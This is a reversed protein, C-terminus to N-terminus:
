ACSGEINISTGEGKKSVIDMTGNLYNTRAKINSLGAGDKVEAQDFGIGDDEVTLTFRDGERVLQILVKKAEAHKIVNNLLEQVIRYIVIEASQEMRTEMGYTQLQVELKGAHNLSDCYNELAEKLGYKILAEPMMNHSVRRLEAISRDLQDIVNGFSRANEESLFVNGKMTSMSLKVGSLLGGIGDHLDRALRSREEEQGKMLSQAALLKKEKELESLQKAHLERSQLLLRNKNQYNKWLLGASLLLLVCGAMLAFNLNTKQRLVTRQALNNQQLSAISDRKKESQYRNEIEEIKQTTENAKLSDSLVIYDKYYDASREYNGLGSQVMALEKMVEAELMKNQVARTQPLAKELYNKAKAYQKTQRCIIGMMRNCNMIRFANDTKQAFVLAKGFEDLAKDYEMTKQYYGGWLNHVRYNLDTSNIKDALKQAEAIHERAEQLRGLTKYSGAVYMHAIAVYSPDYKSRKYAELAKLDYELAKDFDSLDHYVSGVNSNLIGLVLWKNDAKSKEMISIAELFTPIAEQFRNMSRLLNAISAKNTARSEVSIQSTDLAFLSDAWSHYYMASDAHDSSFLDGIGSVGEAMYYHEGTKKALLYAEWYKERARAPESMEYADGIDILLKMKSTDPMSVTSLRNLLSDLYKNQAFSSNNYFFYLLFLCSIKIWPTQMRRIEVFFNLLGVDEFFDGKEPLFLFGTKCRNGALSIFLVNTFFLKIFGDDAM